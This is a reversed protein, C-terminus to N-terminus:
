LSITSVLNKVTLSSKTKNFFDIALKRVSAGHKPVRTTVAYCERSHNGFRQETTKLTAQLQSIAKDLQCGKLEIYLAKKTGEHNVSVIWDCKEQADDILCGDVQIKQINKKEKNQIEFRSRNEKLVILQDKTAVTCKEYDM